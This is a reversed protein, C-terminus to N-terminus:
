SFPAILLWLESMDFLKGSVPNTTAGLFDWVSVRPIDGTVFVM